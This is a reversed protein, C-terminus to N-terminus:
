QGLESNRESSSVYAVGGNNLAKSIYAACWPPVATRVSNEDGAARQSRSPLCAVNQPSFPEAEFFPLLSVSVATLGSTLWGRSVTMMSRPALAALAFAHTIASFSM